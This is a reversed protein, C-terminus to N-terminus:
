LGSFTKEITVESVTQGLRLDVAAVLQRGYGSHVVAAYQGDPSIVMNLPFDRLGITKGAPTLQWRNPLVVTSSNLRGPREQGFMFGFILLSILAYMAGETFAFTGVSYILIIFLHHIGLSATSLCLQVVSAARPLLSNRSPPSIGA